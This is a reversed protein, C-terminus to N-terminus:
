GPERHWGGKPTGTVLFQGLADDQASLGRRLAEAAQAQAHAADLYLSAAQAQHAEAASVAENRARLQLAVERLAAVEDTLRDREEQVHRYLEVMHELQQRLDDDQASAAHPRHRRDDIRGKAALWSDVSARSISWKQREAGSSTEYVLDGRSAM